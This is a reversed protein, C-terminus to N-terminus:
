DEFWETTETTNVSDGKALFETIVKKARAKEFKVREEDRYLSAGEELLRKQLKAIDVNRVEVGADIALKAAIGAAQGEAMVLPMLRTTGHAEHTVSIPKGIVIVGDIVKPILCRYPLQYVDKLDKWIGEVTRDSKDDDWYSGEASVKHIDIPFGYRAVVDDFQRGNIVDDETLTYEGM